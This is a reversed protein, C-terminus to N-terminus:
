LQWISRAGTHRNWIYVSSDLNFGKGVFGNVVALYQRGGHTFAHVYSAGTTSLQQYLNFMNGTMKYVASKVQYRAGNETYRNAVVLFVADAVTFSDLAM